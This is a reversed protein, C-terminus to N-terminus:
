GARRQRAGSATALEASSAPRFAVVTAVDSASAIHLKADQHEGNEELTVRMPSAVCHIFQGHPFPDKRVTISVTQEPGELHLTVDILPLDQAKDLIGADAGREAIRVLWGQHSRSFDQFFRRWEPYPIEKIPM